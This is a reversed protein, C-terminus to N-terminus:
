RAVTTDCARLIGFPSYLSYKNSNSSSPSASPNGCLGTGNMCTTRCGAAHSPDTGLPPTSAFARQLHLELLDFCDVRRARAHSAIADDARGLGVADRRGLSLPPQTKSRDITRFIVTGLAFNKSSIDFADSAELPQRTAVDRKRRKLIIPRPLFWM